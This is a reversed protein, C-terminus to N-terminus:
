DAKPRPELREYLGRQFGQFTARIEAVSGLAAIGDAPSGYKLQLLKPLKDTDLESEGVLVYQGLVFDLFERQRPQYHSLISDRREEAREARKLPPRLFAIYALM